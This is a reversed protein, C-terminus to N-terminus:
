YYAFRTLSILRYGNELDEASYNINWAVRVNLQRLPDVRDGYLEDQYSLTVFYNVGNVLIRYEALVDTFGGPGNDSTIDSNPLFALIYQPDFTMAGGTNKWSDLLLEGVRTATIRVDAKRANWMCASMYSIAGIVIIMIVVISIMVEILTLGSNRNKRVREM